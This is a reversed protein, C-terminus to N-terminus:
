YNLEYLRKVAFNYYERVIEFALFRRKEEMISCCKPITGSGTFLDLVLDNPNTFYKLLTIVLEKPLKNPTKFKQRWYEKKIILVDEAYHKIKNFTFKKKHKSAFFIDYHSSVFKNKTFAGFNHKWIIENILFFNYEDLANLIHRQNSWGSVICITGYKKLVRYSEKIWKRSFESYTDVNIEKYGEIVYNSDRNYNAVQKKGHNIAFPPDTFIHDITNSGIQKLASLSDECYIKNESYKQENL